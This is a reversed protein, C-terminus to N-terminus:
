APGGTVAAGPGAAGGVEAPVAAEAPLAPVSARVGDAVLRAVTVVDSAFTAAVRRYEESRRGTPSTPPAGTGATM